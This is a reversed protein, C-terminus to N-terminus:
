KQTKDEIVCSGAVIPDLVAWAGQDRLHAATHENELTAVIITELQGMRVPRAGAAIVRAFADDASLWPAFVVAVQATDASPSAKPAAALAVLVLATGITLALARGFGAQVDIDQTNAKM